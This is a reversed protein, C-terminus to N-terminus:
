SAHIGVLGGTAGTQRIEYALTAYRRGARPDLTREAESLTQPVVVYGTQVQTGIRFQLDSPTPNAIRVPGSGTDRVAVYVHWYPSTQKALVTDRDTWVSDVALQAPREVHLAYTTDGPDVAALITAPARTNRAMAKTIAVTLHETTDARTGTRGQAEVWVASKGAVTGASIPGQLLSFGEVSRVRVTVSDAEDEGENLVRIRLLYPQETNLRPANPATATSVLVTDIRLMAPTELLITGRSSIGSLVVIERGSNVEIARVQADITCLGTVNSASRDVVFTLSDMRNGALVWTGNSFRSPAKVQWGTGLGFTLYTALGTSDVQVASEGSNQLWVSVSWDETQGVTVSPQRPRVRVISLVAPSQVVVYGSNGDTTQQIHRSTDNVDTVFVTGQIRINGVPITPDVQTVRFILSDTKGGALLRTGSGAFGTPRTYTIKNDVNQSLRYFHLRASDLSVASGGNNTVLMAIRWERTQGATVAAQSPRVSEIALSAAENVRVSDTLTLTKSFANRNETGILVVQPAYKGVSMNAPVPQSLFTLTTDGPAITRVMASDLAAQYTRVGDSLRIYTQLPNLLVTSGGGNHVRVSFRANSGRNVEAPFLSGGLAIVSAPTQVVVRDSDSETVRLVRGSNNEVARLSSKLVITGLATGTKTVTFVLQDSSKGALVRTGSGSFGSPKLVTYTQDEVRTTSRIFRVFTSDLDVTVASEGQNEVTVAVTWNTSTGRTLFTDSAVVRPIRLDAATQVLVQGANTPDTAIEVPGSSNVDLGKVRASISSLGASAGTASVHFVLTDTGGGALILDQSRTWTQPKQVVFDTGTSFRIWTSDPNLRFDAQGSNAVVVRVAWPATQGATVTPQSPVVRQIALVPPTQVTVSGFKGSLESDTYIAGGVTAVRAYITIEGTTTGTRNVTFILSDKAGPALSSGGSALATPYSISYQSTLDQGAKRFRVFTSTSAFDIAQSSSTGNEVAVRVEWPASQSRSVKAQSTLISVIRLAPRQRVYLADYADSTDSTVLGSYLDHGLVRGRVQVPGTRAVQSVDLSFNLTASGGGPIQSPNNASAKRVFDSTQDGGAGYFLLDAQDLVAPATNADGNTVVLSAQIGSDGQSVSDPVVQVSTVTLSAPKLVLWSATMEPTNDGVTVSGVKGSVYGGIVVTGLRAAAKVSVSFRLVFTGQQAATIVSLTDQRVVTYDSSVDQGAQTFSLGGALATVAQSGLKRVTLSVELGTQGRSVQNAGTTVSVLQLGTVDIPATFAEYGTDVEHVGIRHIGPTQLVFGAGPFSHQGTDAPTFSYPGSSVYPLTAYPDTNCFFYVSGTYDTKLNGYRDYARVVVPSDFTRGAIATTPAAAVNLSGFVGPKVTIPNTQAQVSGVQGFLVTPVANVLIESASGSGDQVVIDRLSPSSGNPSPGGGSGVNVTITGSWPNGFPDVANSASLTFPEGARVEAPASLAFAAAAAPKVTITGSTAKVNAVGGELVTPVANVLVQNASGSGDTVVINSLSPPTGNPSNGGGSAPQVVVTGSWPNGFADIANGVSLPFSSGAVVEPPATLRLSALPGPRVVITGTLAEVGDAQGKLVTQVANVLVQNGSGAGGAVTIPNLVPQSGSPSPGGGSVVAVTVTGAWPNGYADRANSVTLTFPTGATVESPASVSFSSVAGPQVVITGTAAKVGGAEGELVTPVANVLVQSASGSGGTVTVNNLSPSTGNPSQGGGSAARVTVTGSWPNGYADRAATVTLVFPIGAVQTTGATLTFSAVPGPSVTVPGSSCSITGDTVSVTHSGGTKLVFGSGSFSHSGADGPAFTYRSSSTYPLQAQADTSEFYVSGTYNTKVNGFADYATVTVPGPFSQGAVTSTPIGTLTFSALPGPLVQVDRTREPGSPSVKGKLTASGARVLVQQASGSGNTVVINALQPETGNPSTGPTTLTVVVTGSAANGYADVAGSVTLSFAQGATVTLPATLTFSSISAPEVLIGATTDAPSGDLEQVWIRQSGATKLVVVADHIGGDASSFTYNQPVQGQPDSTGYRVTGTYDAKVNGWADKVTVRVPVSNGATVATPYGSLEFAFADGPRVATVTWSRSVSGIAAQFQVSSEACYLTQQASGSGDRVSIASLVPMTGDPAAHSGGSLSVVATGSALNGFGDTAGTVSLAFPVGAVATAPGSLTFSAIAGPKVRIGNSSASIGQAIDAVTFTQAGATCLRFSSGPFTKVGTTGDFAADAPVSAQAHPDSTSWHVTGAYNTKLNGYADWARVTITNGLTLGATLTDPFGDLTFHHLPGPVVTFADQGSGILTSDATLCQVVGSYSGLSIANRVNAIRVLVNSGGALRSGTSDRRVEVTDGSVAVRLGGNVSGGAMAVLVFSLDFGPPYIVRIIGDAPLSDSAPITFSIEYIAWQGAGSDLPAVRVNELSAGWSHGAPLIGLLIALIRVLGSRSRGM